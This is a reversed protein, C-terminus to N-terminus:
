AVTFIFKCHNDEANIYVSCTRALEQKGSCFILKGKFRKVRKPWVALSNVEIQRIRSFDVCFQWYVLSVIECRCHFSWRWSDLTIRFSPIVSRRLPPIMSDRFQPFHGWIRFSPIAFPRFSPFHGSIWFSPIVSFARFDYFVSHRLIGRFGLLRFSPFYGSIMFSSIISLWGINNNNITIRAIEVRLERIVKAHKIFDFLSVFDIIKM